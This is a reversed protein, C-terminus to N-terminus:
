KNKPYPIKATKFKEPLPDYEGLDLCTLNENQLKYRLNTEPCILVAPQDSPILPLGHHSIWKKHEAPSGATLSYNKVSKTVVSGAAIFCHCGLQLGPLITANAGIAAGNKVTTQQYFNKRSVQARPNIVNTFVCSPGLFVNDEIIIGKYLSVNNQIKVNSGIVVDDAIFVNQGISCNPGIKARPMIHSFHWILTDSGIHAGPDICATPHKKYASGTQKCTVTQLDSPM